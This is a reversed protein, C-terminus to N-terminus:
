RLAPRALRGAGRPRVAEASYEGEEVPPPEGVGQLPRAATGGARSAGSGPIM